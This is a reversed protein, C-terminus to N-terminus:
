YVILIKMITLYKEKEHQLRGRGQGEDARVGVEISM